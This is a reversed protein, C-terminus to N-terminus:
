RQENQAWLITVLNDLQRDRYWNLKATGPLNSWTAKLRSLPVQQGGTARPDDCNDIMRDSTELKFADVDFKMSIKEGGGGLDLGLIKFRDSRSPLVHYGQNALMFDLCVPIRRDGQSIVMPIPEEFKQPARRKSIVPVVDSAMISVKAGSGPAGKVQLTWLGEQEEKKWEARVLTASDSPMIKDADVFERRTVTLGYPFEGHTSNGAKKIFVHLQRIATTVVSDDPVEKTTDVEDIYVKQKPGNRTDSNFPSFHLARVDASDLDLIRHVTAKPGPKFQDTIKIPQNESSFSVPDGIGLAEIGYEHGFAGIIAAFGAVVISRAILKRIM